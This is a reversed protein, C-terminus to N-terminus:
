PGSPPDVSGPHTNIYNVVLLVDLAELGGSGDVDWPDVANQWRAAVYVTLARETYRGEADASRVRIRYEDRTRHKAVEALRLQAM